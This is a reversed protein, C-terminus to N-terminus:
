CAQGLVGSTHGPGDASPCAQGHFPYSANGQALADEHDINNRPLPWTVAGHAIVLIARALCLALRGRLTYVM